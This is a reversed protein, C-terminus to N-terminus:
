DNGGRDSRIAPRTPLLPQSADSGAGIDMGRERAFREAARAAAAMRDNGPGTRTAANRKTTASQRIWNRWTAQWDLKVGKQGPVSSWYDLFRDAQDRIEDSSCGQEVAWEGWAMPLRWDSPLRTGRRSSVITDEKGNIIGKNEKTGSRDRKQGADQGAETGRAAIPAQYEDYKCLTIVLVGTGSQTGIMDRKVLRDFFRHVRSKSWGWAEAFFRVSGALQGRQLDVVARGIRRQHPKFSAQCIMWIWAERESFVDANFAADDWLARSIRVMGRTM